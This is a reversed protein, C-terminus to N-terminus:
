GRLRFAREIGGLALLTTLSQKIIGARWTDARGEAYWQIDETRLSQVAGWEDVVLARNGQGLQILHCKDRQQYNYDFNQRKGILAPFDIVQVKEDHVVAVGLCWAPMGSVAKIARTCQIVRYIDILPLAYAIGGIGFTLCQTPSEFRPERSRACEVVEPVSLAADFLVEITDLGRTKGYVGGDPTETVNTLLDDLYGNLALHHRAIHLRPPGSLERDVSRQRTIKM